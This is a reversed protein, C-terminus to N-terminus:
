PSPYVVGATLSRLSEITSDSKLWLQGLMFVSGLESLGDAFFIFVAANILRQHGLVYQLWKIGINRDFAERHRHRSDFRAGSSDM